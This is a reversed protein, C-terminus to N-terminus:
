LNEKSASKYKTMHVLSGTDNFQVKDMYSRMLLIGRGSPKYLNKEDRPDPLNGYDFGSGEDSVSVEFRDAAILYSVTVHRSSDSKNGHNVANIFAEELSLHIAFIDDCSFGNDKVLELIQCCVAAVAAVSNDVTVTKQFTAKSVM